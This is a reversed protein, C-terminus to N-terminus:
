RHLHSADIDNVYSLVRSRQPFALWYPWRCIYACSCLITWPSYIHTQIPSREPFCDVINMRTLKNARTHTHTHSQFRYTLSKIRIFQVHAPHRCVPWLHHCVISAYANSARMKFPHANCATFSCGFQLFNNVLRRSNVANRQLPTRKWISSICFLLLLLLMLWILFLPLM